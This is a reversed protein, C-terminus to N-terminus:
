VIRDHLLRECRDCLLRSSAHECIAASCRCCLTQVSDGAYRLRPQQDRCHTLWWTRWRDIATDQDTTM